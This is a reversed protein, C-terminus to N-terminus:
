RHVPGPASERFLGWRRILQVSRVSSENGPRVLSWANIDDLVCM